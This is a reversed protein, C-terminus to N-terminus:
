NSDDDGREKEIAAIHENLSRGALDDAYHWEDPGVGLARLEEEIERIEADLARAERKTPSPPPRERGRDFGELRRVRWARGGLSGAM